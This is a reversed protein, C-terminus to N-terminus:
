KIDKYAQAIKQLPNGQSENMGDPMTLDGGKYYSKDKMKEKYEKNLKEYTEKKASKLVDIFHEVCVIYDALHKSGYEVDEPNKKAMDKLSKLLSEAKKVDDKAFVMYEGTGFADSIPKDTTKGLSGSSCYIRYFGEGLDRDTEVWQIGCFQTKKFAKSFDDANVFDYKAYKM